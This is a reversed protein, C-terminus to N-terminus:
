VFEVWDAPRTERRANRRPRGAPAAPKGQEFREVEAASVRYCPRKSGRASVDFAVLKRSRILAYITDLDTRWRQALEVPKFAAADVLPPALALDRPMQEATSLSSGQSM